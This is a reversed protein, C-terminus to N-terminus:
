KKTETEKKMSKEFEDDGGPKPGFRRVAVRTESLERGFAGPAETVLSRFGKTYVHCCWSRSLPVAGVSVLRPLLLVGGGRVAVVAGVVFAVAAADASVM